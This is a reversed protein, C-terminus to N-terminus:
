DAKIGRAKILAGFRTSDISARLNFDSPTMPAPIGGIALIRDKVTQTGLAKNIERNVTILLGARDLEALHEHLDRYGREPKPPKPSQM